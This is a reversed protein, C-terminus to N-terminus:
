SVRERLWNIAANRTQAAITRTRVRLSAEAESILDRVVHVLAEVDPSGTVARESLSGDASHRFTVRVPDAACPVIREPPVVGDLRRRIQQLLQRMQPRTYADSKNVAVGVPRSIRIIQEYELDILDKDCVLLCADASVRPEVRTLAVTDTVQIERGDFMVIASSDAGTAGARPDVAFSTGFVANLVASKGTSATGIASFRIM